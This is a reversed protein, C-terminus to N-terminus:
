GYLSGRTRQHSTHIANNVTYPGGHGRTPRIFQMIEITFLEKRYVHRTLPISCDLIYRHATAM